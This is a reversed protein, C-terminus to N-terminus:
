RANLPGYMYGRGGSQIWEATGAKVEAVTGATYIPTVDASRGSVGPMDGVSHGLFEWGPKNQTALVYSKGSFLEIAETLDTWVFGDEDAGSCGPKLVVTTSALVNFGDMDARNTSTSSQLEAVVVEAAEVVAPSLTKTCFRAVASINQSVRMTLLGGVFGVFRQTGNCQTVCQFLATSEGSAAPGPTHAVVLNDFTATHWGSGLAVRGAGAISVGPDATFGTRLLQVGDISASINGCGSTGICLRRSSFITEMYSTGTRHTGDVQGRALSSVRAPENQYVVVAWRSDVGDSHNLQLCVSSPPWGSWTSFSTAHACVMVYCEGDPASGVCGHTSCTCTGGGCVGVCVCVGGGGVHLVFCGCLRM